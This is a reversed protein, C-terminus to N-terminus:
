QLLKRKQIFNEANMTQTIIKIVIVATNLKEYVNISHNLTFTRFRFTFAFLSSKLLLRKM